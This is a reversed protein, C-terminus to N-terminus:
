EKDIVAYRLIYYRQSEELSLGTNAKWAQFKSKSKLDFMSPAKSDDADGDKAQKFFGYFELLDGQSLTGGM